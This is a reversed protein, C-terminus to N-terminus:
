TFHPNVKDKLLNFPNLFINARTPVHWRTVARDDKCPAHPQNRCSFFLAGEHLFPAHLFCLEPKAEIYMEKKEERERLEQARGQM